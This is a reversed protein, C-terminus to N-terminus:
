HLTSCTSKLKLSASETDVQFAHVMQQKGLSQV